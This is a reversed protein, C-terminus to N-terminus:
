EKQILMVPMNLRKASSSVQPHSQVNQNAASQLSCVWQCKKRSSHHVKDWLDGAERLLSVAFHLSISLPYLTEKQLHYVELFVLYCPVAKTALPNHSPYYEIIVLLSIRDDSFEIWNMPTPSSPTRYTAGVIHIKLTFSSYNFSESNRCM